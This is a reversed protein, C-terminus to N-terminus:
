YDFSDEDDDFENELSSELSISMRSGLDMAEKKDKFTLLTQYQPYNMSFRNIAIDLSVETCESFLSESNEANLKKNESEMVRVKRIFVDPTAATIIEEKKSHKELLEKLRDNPYPLSSKNSKENIAVIHHKVMVKLQDIFKRLETFHNQMDEGFNNMTGAFADMLSSTEDCSENWPENLEKEEFLTKLRDIKKTCEEREIDNDKELELCELEDQLKSIEYKDNEIEQNFEDYINCSKQTSENMSIILDNQDEMIKAVSISLYFGENEWLQDVIKTFMNDYQVIEDDSINEKINENYFSELGKYWDYFGDISEQLGHINNEDFEIEDLLALEYPADGISVRMTQEYHSMQNCLPHNDLCTDRPQLPLGMMEESSMEFNIDCKEITM